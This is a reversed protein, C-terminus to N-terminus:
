KEVIGPESRSEDGPDGTRDLARHAEEVIRDAVVRWDAMGDDGRGFHLYALFEINGRPGKIPSFDLGLIGIGKEQLGGIVRHLIAAHHERKRVVGKKQEGAGAEFQPKILVVGRVGPFLSAIRDVVRLLSIFSLDATIFDVRDHFDDRTLSNVHRREMVVVRPDGRLSYDLQGYGVDVAYVRAAGHKLMCHTFGGTSAGLDAVVMGRPNIGFSELARLLKEGGRSVFEGGPRAVSVSEDGSIRHSPERVTEDDVRVWGSLIERKATERSRSLGREALFCDLRYRKKM